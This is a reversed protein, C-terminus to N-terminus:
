EPSGQKGEEQKRETALTGWGGRCTMKGKELVCGSVFVGQGSDERDGGVRNGVSERGECLRLRQLSARALSVRLTQTDTEKGMM